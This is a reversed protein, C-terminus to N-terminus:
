GAFFFGARAPEISSLAPPRSLEPAVDVLGGAPLLATDDADLGRRGRLDDGGREPGQGDGGAGAAARNRDRDGAAQGAGHRRIGGAPDRDPVASRGLVAPRRLLHLEALPVATRRADRLLGGLLRHEGDAG